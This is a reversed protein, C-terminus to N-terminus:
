RAALATYRGSTLSELEDPTLRFVAHPTGAAAWIESFQRLTDDLLVPMPSRLGVPPVGGIAYGTHERVFDPDAREIGRGLAVAVATEDVRHAGSAVVLLPSGDATRFLLSKAIQAVTCGIAAAADAATRTSTDFELVTYGPGLIQQVRLAQKATAKKM